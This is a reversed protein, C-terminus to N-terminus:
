KGTVEVLTVVSAGYLLVDEDKIHRNCNGRIYFRLRPSLLFRDILQYVILKSVDSMLSMFSRCARGYALALQALLTHTRTISLYRMINFISTEPLMTMRSRFDKFHAFDLM